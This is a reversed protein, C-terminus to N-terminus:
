DGLKATIRAAEKESLGSMASLIASRSSLDITRLVQLVQAENIKKMELLLAAANAPAMGALTQALEAHTLGSKEGASPDGRMALREQLAAIQRDRVPVTDKLLISVEAAINPKMKELIEIQDKSGMQELMLVLEATALNEMIPAAKSPNM